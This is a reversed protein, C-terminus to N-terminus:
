AVPRPLERCLLKFLVASAGGVGGYPPEYQFKLLQPKKRGYLVSHPCFIFDHMLYVRVSKQWSRYSPIFIFSYAGPLIHHKTEPAYKQRQFLGNYVPPQSRKKVTTLTPKEQAKRRDAHVKEAADTM